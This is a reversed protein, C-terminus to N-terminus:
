VRPAPTCRSFFAARRACRAGSVAIYSACRDELRENKVWLYHGDEDCYKNGLKSAAAAASGSGGRVKQAACWVWYVRALTLSPVVASGRPRAARFIAPTAACRGRRRTAVAAGM